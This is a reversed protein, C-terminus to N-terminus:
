KGEIQELLMGPCKVETNLAKVCPESLGTQNINLTIGALQQSQAGALLLFLLILLM